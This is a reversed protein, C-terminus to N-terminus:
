QLNRSEPKKNFQLISHTFEWSNSKYRAGKKILFEKRLYLTPDMLNCKDSTNLSDVCTM